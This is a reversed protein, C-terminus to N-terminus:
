TYTKMRCEPKSKIEMELPGKSYKSVVPLLFINHIVTPNLIWAHRPSPDLKECGHCDQKDRMVPTPLHRQDRSSTSNTDSSVDTVPAEYM